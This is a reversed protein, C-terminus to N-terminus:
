SEGTPFALKWSDCGNAIKGFLDAIRSRTCFHLHTFTYTPIFAEGYQHGVFVTTDDALKPDGLLKGDDSYDAVWLTDDSVVVFPLVLTRFSSVGHRKHADIANSVLESASALAQARKSYVEGDEAKIDGHETRGVQATSKGVMEAPAYLGLGSGITLVDNSDTIPVVLGSPGPVPDHAHVIQHYSEENSRPIRSVLLPYSPNLSKCEIALDIRKNERESFARIDYQRAKKTVPDEYSGGHTLQLGASRGTRYVFLELDFSDQTSLYERLDTADIPKDRLKPM